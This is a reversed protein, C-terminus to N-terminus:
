QSYGGMSAAVLLNELWNDVYCFGNLDHFPSHRNPDRSRTRKGYPHFNWILAM